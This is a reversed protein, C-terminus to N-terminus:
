CARLEERPRVGAKKAEGEADEARKERLEHWKEINQQIVEQLWACNMM